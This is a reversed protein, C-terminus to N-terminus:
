RAGIREVPGVLEAYRERMTFFDKEEHRPIPEGALTAPLADFHLHWAGLMAHVQWSTDETLSHTLRFSSGDGDPRVEWRMISGFFDPAHKWAPADWTLELLKLPEVRLVKGYITAPGKPYIQIVVNGGEVLELEDVPGGLWGELLKPESVAAWMREIPVDFQREFCVDYREGTKHVTGDLTTAAHDSM